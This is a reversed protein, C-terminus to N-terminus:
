AFSRILSAFSEIVPYDKRDVPKNGPRVVLTAQMGASRAADLEEPIDSFFTIDGAPMAFDKTIESYSISDRKPGTTTDYFGNLYPTMDGDETYKFFNEQATVSGSSYIRVDAGSEKWHQLAPPVDSFLKSLLKGTTFGEFWILGQLEKLGTAKVDGDMLRDIESLVIQISEERSRTTGLWDSWDGAGTDIAMLDLARRTSAESWKRNLYDQSNKRAFPFLVDYVYSVPSVTGEIDLLIGRTSNRSM